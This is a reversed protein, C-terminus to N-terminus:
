ELSYSFGLEQHHKLPASKGPMSNVPSNPPAVPFSHYLSPDALSNGTVKNDVCDLAAAGFQRTVGEVANSTEDFLISHVRGLGSPEPIPAVIQCLEVPRGKPIETQKDRPFTANSACKDSPVDLINVVRGTTLEIM